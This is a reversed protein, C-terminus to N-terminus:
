INNDKNRDLLDLLYSRKINLINKKNLKDDTIGPKVLIQSLLKIDTLDVDIYGNYYDWYKIKDGIKILISDDTNLYEGIEIGSTM